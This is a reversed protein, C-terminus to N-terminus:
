ITLNLSLYYYNFFFFAQIGSWFKLREQWNEWTVLCKWLSLYPMTWGWWSSCCMQEHERCQTHSIKLRRRLPPVGTFFAPCGCKCIQSNRSIHTTKQKKFSQSSAAWKLTRWCVFVSDESPHLGNDSTVFMFLLRHPAKTQSIGSQPFFFFINLIRVALSDKKPQGFM